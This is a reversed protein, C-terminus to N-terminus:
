ETNEKRQPGAEQAEGPQPGGGLRARIRAVVQDTLERCSGLYEEPVLLDALRGLSEAPLGPLGPASDLAGRLTGGDDWAQMAAQYVVEHAESRGIDAALHMMAAESLTIDGLLHLNRHIAKPHVILGRLIWGTRELVAAGRCFTEPLVAWDVGWLGMDREHEQHMAALMSAPAQRCLVAGAIVYESIMPNRKHPMTSSGVKGLAFPEEVEAVETRQLVRIENAIKGCTAAIMSVVCTIEAFGDRATHWPIVANGLSLRDMMRQRVELGREGFSALSGVAGGLQGVLVRPRADAIRDLHRECEAALVAFKFGLTIPLAHQAHTRGIMPLDRYREALDALTETLEDLLRQLITVARRLQLALGTDTIDQTTAGYHVYAAAEPGAAEGLQRLLPVLPHATREVEASMAALDFLGADASAEIAAAASKPILGLEAQAASLGVEADLWAQIMARDTFVAQMEASTFLRGLLRSDLVHSPAMDGAGPNRQGDHDM